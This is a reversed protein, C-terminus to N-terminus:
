VQFGVHKHCRVLRHVPELSVFEDRIYTLGRPQVANTFKLVTM